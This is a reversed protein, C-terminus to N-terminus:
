ADCFKNMHICFEDSIIEEKIPKASSTFETTPYLECVLYDNGQADSFEKLDTRKM